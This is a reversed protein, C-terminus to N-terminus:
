VRLIDNITYSIGAGLPGKLLNVGLGKYFGQLGYARYIDPIVTRMNVSSTHTLPHVQMTKRITDLPYVVTQSLSGAIAGIILLESTKCKRQKREEINDKMTEFAWFSVAAYPFVGILTPGLGSFFAAKVGSRLSVVQRYSAKGSQVALRTSMVELPYTALTALSGATGGAIINMMPRSFNYKELMNRVQDFSVFMLGSLPVVRAATALNGRWLGRVGDNRVLERLQGAVHRATLDSHVQNM